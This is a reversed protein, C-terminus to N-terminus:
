AAAYQGDVVPEPAEPETEPVGSLASHVTKMVDLAYTRESESMRAFVGFFEQRDIANKRPRGRRNPPPAITTKM